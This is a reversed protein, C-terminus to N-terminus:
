RTTGPQPTATTGLTRRYVKGGVYGVVIAVFLLLPYIVVVDVWGIDLSRVLEFRGTTVSMWAVYLFYSASLSVGSAVFSWTSKEFETLDADFEATYIVTKLSVFGPVLCLVTYIANVALDPFAV